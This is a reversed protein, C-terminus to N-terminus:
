APPQPLDQDSLLAKAREWRESSHTSNRQCWEVLWENSPRPAAICQSTISAGREAVRAANTASFAVFRWEVGTDLYDHTVPERFGAPQHVAWDRFRFIEQASLRLEKGGSNGVKFTRRLTESVRQHRPTGKAAWEAALESNGPSHPHIVAQLNDLAFAVAAIAIVGAKFERVLLDAQVEGEIGAEGASDAAAKLEDRISIAREAQEVAIDLWFPWIELAVEVRLPSMEPNGEDNIRLTLGGSPIRLQMGQTIFVGAV